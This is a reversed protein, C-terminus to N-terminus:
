AAVLCARAKLWILLLSIVFLRILILIADLPSSVELIKSSWRGSGLVELLNFGKRREASFRRDIKKGPTIDEFKGRTTKEKLIKSGYIRKMSQMKKSIISVKICLIYTLYLSLSLFFCSFFVDTSCIQLNIRGLTLLVRLYM